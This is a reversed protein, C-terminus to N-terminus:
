PGLFDDRLAGAGKENMHFFEDPDFLLADRHIKQQLFEVIIVDFDNLVKELQGEFQFVSHHIEPVVRVSRLLEAQKQM